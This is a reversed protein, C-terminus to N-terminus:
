AGNFMKTAKKKQVQGFKSAHKDWGAELMEASARDLCKQWKRPNSEWAGFQYSSHVPM